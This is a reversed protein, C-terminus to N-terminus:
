RAMLGRWPRYKTPGKLIIEQLEVDTKSQTTKSTLRASPPTLYKAMQGQGDGKYGHCHEYSEEYIQKGAKPDGCAASAQLGMLMLWTVIIYSTVRMRFFQLVIMRIPRLM